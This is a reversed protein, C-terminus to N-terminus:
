GCETSVGIKQVWIRVQGCLYSSLKHLALYSHLWAYRIQLLSVLSPLSLYLPSFSKKVLIKGVHREGDAFYRLKSIGEWSVSGFQSRFVCYVWCWRGSHDGPHPVLDSLVAAGVLPCAGPQSLIWFISHAPAEILFPFPKCSIDPLKSFKGPVFCWRSISDCGCSCTGSRCATVLVTLIM